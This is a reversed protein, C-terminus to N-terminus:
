LARVITLGASREPQTVRGCRRQRPGICDHSLESVLQREDAPVDVGKPGTCERILRVQNGIFHKGM